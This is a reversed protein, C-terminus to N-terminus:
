KRGNGDRAATADSVFDYGAVVNGNLDSHSVIGTDLVAVVSGSGTSTGWAGPVRMGNTGHFGWLEGYRADNPTLAITQLTDPEVTDVSGSAKLEAMFDEAEADTLKKDAKVVYSGTATARLEKVSVGAEQAAKGWAKARGNKTAASSAGQQYTVIFQDNADQDPDSAATVKGQDLSVSQNPATGDQDAPAASTPLAALPGLCLSAAAALVAGRHLTTGSRRQRPSHDSPTM